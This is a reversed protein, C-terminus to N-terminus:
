SPGKVSTEYVEGIRDAMAHWNWHEKAHERVHVGADACGAPDSAFGVVANALEQIVSEPRQLEVQRGVGATLLAAGGAALCITPVASAMAELIVYGFQERLSPYLLVDVEKLAALTASRTLGGLFRVAESCRLTAVLRELHSREPGEGILWLQLEPVELRARAFSRVALDFGKWGLL